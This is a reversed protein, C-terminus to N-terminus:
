KSLSWWHFVEDTAKDHFSEFAERRCGGMSEIEGGTSNTYERMSGYVLSEQREGLREGWSGFEALERREKILITIENEVQVDYSQYTVVGLGMNAIKLSAM